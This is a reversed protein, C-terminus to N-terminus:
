AGKTDFQVVYLNLPYNSVMYFLFDLFSEQFGASKRHKENVPRFFHFIKLINKKLSLVRIDRGFRLPNLELKKCVDVNELYFLIRRCFLPTMPLAPTTMKPSSVSRPAM